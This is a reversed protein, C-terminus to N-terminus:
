EYIIVKKNEIKHITCKVDFIYKINEATLIEETRGQKYIEGDKILIVNDCYELALDINHVTLVITKNKIERLFKMFMIQYNIDLHNIPEDLVIIETEQTLCRAIYTLKLEGGSIYKAKTNKIKELGFFSIINEIIKEDEESYDQFIKKYPYRGMRILEEVTFNGVNGFNQLVFAISKSFDKIKIKNIPIDKIYVLNKSKIEKSIHRILTTKGCGNKGLIGTIKNKEVEFFIDKLINKNEIKFSLNKVRIM